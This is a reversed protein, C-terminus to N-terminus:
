PQCCSIIVLSQSKRGRALRNELHRMRGVLWSCPGGSEVPLKCHEAGEMEGRGKGKKRNMDEDAQMLDPAVEGAVKM